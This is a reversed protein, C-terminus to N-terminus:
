MANAKPLGMEGATTMRKSYLRIFYDAEDGSRYTQPIVVYIGPSLEFRKCIERYIEYEGATAVIDARSKNKRNLPNLSPENLRFVSFGILVEPEQLSSTRVEKEMLSVILTCKGTSDPDKLGIYYQQNDWHIGTSCMTCCATDEHMWSGHFMAVDWEEKDMNANLEATFADPVMHCMQFNMSSKLSITTHWGSSEMM